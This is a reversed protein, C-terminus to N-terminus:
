FLILEVKATNLVKSYLESDLRNEVNLRETASMVDGKVRKDKNKKTLENVVDSLKYEKYTKGPVERSKVKLKNLAVTFQDREGKSKIYFDM